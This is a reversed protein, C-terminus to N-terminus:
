TKKRRKKFLIYAAASCFAIAAGTVTYIRTGEGGTSPFVGTIAPVAFNAVSLITPNGSTMSLEYGHDYEFPVYSIDGQGEIYEAPEGKENVEEIYYYYPDGKESTFLMEDLDLKWKGDQTMNASTLTYYGIFEKSEPIDPVAPQTRVKLNIRISTGDIDTATVVASGFGAATIKGTDNDVSIIKDNSTTLTISGGNIANGVTFQRVEGRIMESVDGTLTLSPIVKVTCPSSETGSRVAVISGESGAAGQKGVVYYINDNDKEITFPPDQTTAVISVGTTINTKVKIRGGEHVQIPSANLIAPVSPITTSSTTSSTTSATTSSTTPETTPEPAATTTTTPPPENGYHLVVRNISFNNDGPWDQYITLYSVKIDSISFSVKSSNNQLNFERQYEYSNIVFRGNGNNAGSNFYMDIGVVGDQYESPIDYKTSFKPATITYDSGARVRIVNLNVFSFPNNLYSSFQQSVTKVNETTVTEATVTTTVASEAVTTEATTETDGDYYHVFPNANYTPAGGGSSGTDPELYQFEDPIGPIEYTHGTGYFFYLGAAAGILNANYDTGIGNRTKDSRVDNYEAELKGTNKDPETVESPPGGVLGGILRNRDQAYSNIVSQDDATLMDVAMGSGARFFPKQVSNESFNSVFCIGNQRGDENDIYYNNDGLIFNMQGKCWAKVADANIGAANNKAAALAIMQYGTNYRAVGINNSGSYNLYDDNLIYSNINGAINSWNGGLHAANVVLAANMVSDWSQSLAANQGNLLDNAATKYNDPDAVALWVLAWAIDDDTSGSPYTERNWYQENYADKGQAFTYLLKAKELYGAYKEADPSNADYFNLYSLVLAAAYEAAIDGGMKDAPTLWKMEDTRDNEQAEPTGWYLHDTSPKGKQVLLESVAGNEIKVSSDIFEAYHDLITRFHDTQGLADCENRYEYLMWGLTSASYGTPLGYTVHDEGDHFGGTVGGVDDDQSHCKSRWSYASKNGVDDGCMVGDYFYLSYQLLRAYDSTVSDDTGKLEQGTPWPYRVARYLAVKISDPRTDATDNEWAKNLELAGTVFKNTLKMEGSAPTAANDPNTCIWNSPVNTEVLRYERGAQLNRITEEFNKSKRLIVTSKGPVEEWNGSANKWQLTATLSEPIFSSNNGYGTWNKKAKLSINNLTNTIVEIGEKDEPKEKEVSYSVTYNDKSGVEKFYWAYLRSSSTASFTKSYTWNNEENLTITSYYTGGEMDAAILPNNASRPASTGKYYLEVYIEKPRYIDSVAEDGVWKKKVTLTTSGTTECENKVIIKCGGGAVLRFSAKGTGLSESLNWSSDPEGYYYVMGESEGDAENDTTARIIIDVDNSNIFFKCQSLDIPPDYTVPQKFHYYQKGGITVKSDSYLSAANATGKDNGNADPPIWFQDAKVTSYVDISKVNPITDKNTPERMPSGNPSMLYYEWAWGLNVKGMEVKQYKLHGIDITYLLGSHKVDFYIKGPNIIKYGSKAPLVDETLYYKGEKLEGNRVYANNLKSFVPNKGFEEDQKLGSCILEGKESWLSFEAGTLSFTSSSGKIQGEKEITISAGYIKNNVFKVVNSECINKIEPNRLYYTGTIDDFGINEIYGVQLETPRTNDYVFFLGDSSHYGCNETNNPNEYLMYVKGSDLDQPDIQLSGKFTSIPHLDYPSMAYNDFTILQVTPAEQDIILNGNSDKEYDGNVDKKYTDVLVKGTEDVKQFLLGPRNEIKVNMDSVFSIMEMDPDFYYNNVGTPIIYAKSCDINASDNYVASIINSNNDDVFIEFKDNKDPFTIVRSKNTSGYMKSDDIDATWSGAGDVTVTVTYKKPYYYNKNDKTMVAINESGLLVKEKVTVYKDQNEVTFYGEPTQTEKIVYRQTFTKYKPSDALVDITEPSEGNFEAEIIEEDDASAAETVIEETVTETVEISTEEAATESTEVTTEEADAETTEATMEETTEETVPETVEIEDTLEEENNEDADSSKKSNLLNGGSYKGGPPSMNLSADPQMNLYDTGGSFDIMSPFPVYQSGNGSTWEFVSDTLNGYADCKYVALKANQVFSNVTDACIKDVPVIYGSKLSVISSTGRYPRYGFELGGNFSKAVLAGSLHGECNFSSTVDANPALITGNYNCSIDLNTAKPYNYIIRESDKSNNSSNGGQNSIDKIIQNNSNVFYTKVTGGHQIKVEGENGCNIVIHADEPINKFRVENYSLKWEPLYFYITSDTTGEPAEFLISNGSTEKAPIGGISYLTDSRSRLTAFISTIVKKLDPYEYMQALENVNGLYDHTCNDGCEGPYEHKHSISFPIDEKEDSLHLSGAVDGVLFRKFVDEDLDYYVTLAGGSYKHMNSDSQRGKGTSLHNIRYLKGGCIVHAYGSVVNGTEKVTENSYNDTYRLATMSAYDGSGIQYNWEGKFSIDGGAAIRGECDAASATFDNEVFACFDSALGLFYTSKSLNLADDLTMNYGSYDDKNGFFLTILDAEQPSYIIGDVINGDADAANTVKERGDSGTYNLQVVPIEPTVPSVKPSTMSKAPKMLGLPVTFFVLISLALLVALQKKHKEHDNLYTQIISQFRKLVTVEKFFCNNLYFCSRNNSITNKITSHRNKRAAM